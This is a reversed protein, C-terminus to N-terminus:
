ATAVDILQTSRRLYSFWGVLMGLALVLYGVGLGMAQPTAAFTNLALALSNVWTAIAAFFLIINQVTSSMLSSQNVFLYTGISIVGATAAAWLMFTIVGIWMGQWLRQRREQQALKVEFRDVFNPTPVAHPMASMQQHMGQWDQWQVALTPYRELHLDFQAQEADDLLNDLALSMLLLFEEQTQESPQNNMM